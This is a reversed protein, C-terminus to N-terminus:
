KKIKNVARNIGFTRPFHIFNIILGFTQCHLNRQHSILLCYWHDWLIIWDKGWDVFCGGLHLGVLLILGQAIFVDKCINSRSLELKVFFKLDPIEFWFWLPFVFSIFLFRLFVIFFVWVSLDLYDGRLVLTCYSLFELLSFVVFLGVKLELLTRQLCLLVFQRTLIKWKNLWSTFYFVLDRFSFILFIIKIM